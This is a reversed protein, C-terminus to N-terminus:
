GSLPHTDQRRARCRTRHPLIIYRKDLNDKVVLGAGTGILISLTVPYTLTPHATLYQHFINAATAITALLTYIMANKFPANAHAARPL